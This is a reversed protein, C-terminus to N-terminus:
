LGDWPKRATRFNRVLPPLDARATSTRYNPHDALESLYRFKRVVRVLPRGRRARNKRRQHPVEASRPLGLVSNGPRFLEAGPTSACGPAPTTGAGCETGPRRATATV